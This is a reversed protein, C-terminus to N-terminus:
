QLTSSRKCAKKKQATRIIEFVKSQFVSVKMWEIQDDMIVHGFIKQTEFSEKDLISQISCTNYLLSPQDILMLALNESLLVNVGRLEHLMDEFPDSM